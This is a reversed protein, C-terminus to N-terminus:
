IERDPHGMHGRIRRQPDELGRWEARSKRREMEYVKTLAETKIVVGSSVLTKGTPIQPQHRSLCEFRGQGQRRTLEASRRQKKPASNDV